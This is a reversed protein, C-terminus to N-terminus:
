HWRRVREYFELWWTREGYWEVYRGLQFSYDKM